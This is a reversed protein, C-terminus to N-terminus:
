VGRVHYHENGRGGGVNINVTEITFCGPYDKYKALLDSSRKGKAYEDVEFDVEGAIIIDGSSLTFKSTKDVLENWEGKNIYYDSVRIRCITSNSAITTEGVVIKDVTHKYFCDSIVRRYYYVRNDSDVFRNYLTITTNWWSPYRNM